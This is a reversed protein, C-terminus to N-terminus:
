MSIITYKTVFAGTPQIPVEDNPGGTWAAWVM